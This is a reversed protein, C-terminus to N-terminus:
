RTRARGYPESRTTDGLINMILERALNILRTLPTHRRYKDGAESVTLAGADKRPSIYVESNPFGNIIDSLDHTSTRANVPARTNTTGFIFDFEFAITIILTTNEIKRPVRRFNLKIFNRVGFHSTSPTTPSTVLTVRIHISQM